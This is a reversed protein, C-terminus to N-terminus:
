CFLRAGSGLILLVIAISFHPLHGVLEVPGLLYLTIVLFILWAVTTIHTILGLLFFLGFLIEALGGAFSFWYDSM